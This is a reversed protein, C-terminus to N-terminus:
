LALKLGLLWYVFKEPANREKKWEKQTYTVCANRWKRESRRAVLTMRKGEALRMKRVRGKRSGGGGWPRFVTRFPWKKLRESIHAVLLRWQLEVQATCAIANINFTYHVWERGRISVLSLHSQLSCERLWGAVIMFLYRNYAIQNFYVAREHLSSDICSQWHISCKFRQEKWDRKSM